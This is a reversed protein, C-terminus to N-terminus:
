PADAQGGEIIRLRPASAREPGGTGAAPREGPAARDASPARASSAASSTRRPAPRLPLGYYLYMDLLM